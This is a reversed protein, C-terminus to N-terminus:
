RPVMRRSSARQSLCTFLVDFNHQGLIPLLPQELSLTQAKQSFPYRIASRKEQALGVVPFLFMYYIKSNLAKLKLTIGIDILTLSFSTLSTLCM